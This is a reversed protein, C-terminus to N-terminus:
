TPEGPSYGPTQGHEELDRNLEDDCRACTDYASDRGCIACAGDWPQRRTAQFEAEAAADEQQM